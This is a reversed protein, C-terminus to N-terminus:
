ALRGELYPMRPGDPWWPGERFPRHRELVDEVVKSCEKCVVWTISRPRPSLIVGVLWFIPMTSPYANMQSPLLSGILCVFFVAVFSAVVFNAKVFCSVGLYREGIEGRRCM